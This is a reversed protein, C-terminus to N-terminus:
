WRFHAFAKNSEAMKHVDDRKKIAAGRNNYAEILEAALRDPMSKEGRERSYTVLWKIALTVRRDARVEIPVQYNAGGVRRSVVELVPKVNDVAQKFVKLPDDSLRQSIIDFSTYIIDEALSKKGDWMLKNVFKAVLKDKYKPDLYTKRHYVRKKRSM